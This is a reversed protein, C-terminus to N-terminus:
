LTPGRRGRDAGYLSGTPALGLSLRLSRGLTDWVALFKMYVSQDLGRKHGSLHHLACTGITKKKMKGLFDAKSLPLNQTM